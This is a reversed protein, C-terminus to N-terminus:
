SVWAKEASQIPNDLDLGNRAAWGARRVALRGGEWAPTWIRNYLDVALCGIPSNFEIGLRNRAGPQYKHVGRLFSAYGQNDGVAHWRRTKHGHFGWPCKRFSRTIKLAEYFPQAENNELLIDFSVSRCM